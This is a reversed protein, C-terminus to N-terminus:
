NSVYHGIRLVAWTLCGISIFVYVSAGVWFRIPKTAREVRHFAGAHIGYIARVGALLSAAFLGELNPPWLIM